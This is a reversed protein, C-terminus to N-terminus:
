DKDKFIMYSSDSQEMKLGNMQTIVQLINQISDKKVIVGTFSIDKLDAAVFQINVNYYQHLKQLVASMDSGNFILSDPTERPESNKAVSENISITKHEQMRSVKAITNAEDYVMQEGPLLYIDKWNKVTSDTAKIVVKGHLLQV